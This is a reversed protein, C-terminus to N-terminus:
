INLHWSQEYIAYVPTHLKVHAHQRYAHGCCDHEHQCYTHPYQERVYDTLLEVPLDDHTVFILSYGGEGHDETHAGAHYSLQIGGLYVVEETAPLEGTGMDTRNAWFEWARAWVNTAGGSAMLAVVPLPLSSETSGDYCVLTAHDDATWIDCEVEGREDRMTGVFVLDDSEPLGLAPQTATVYRTFKIM